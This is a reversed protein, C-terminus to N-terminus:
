KRPAIADEALRILPEVDDRVGAGVSLAIGDVIVGLFRGIETPEVDDRVEGRAQLERMRELLLRDHESSKRLWRERVAPDTRLMRAVELYVGVWAPNENAIRRLLPGFGEELWQRAARQQDEEALAFFLDLKSPFHHFIAGRSLGIEAELRVVTAGEYGHKAFASRAGDLIERKRAEM